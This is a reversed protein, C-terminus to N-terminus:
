VISKGKLKGGFYLEDAETEDKLVEDSICLPM